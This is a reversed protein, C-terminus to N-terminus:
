SIIDKTQQISTTFLSISLEISVEIDSNLIETTLGSLRDITCGTIILTPYDGNRLLTIFNTANFLTGTVTGHYKLVFYSSGSSSTEWGESILPIMQVGCENATNIIFDVVDNRDVNAPFVQLAASLDNQAQLLQSELDSPPQALQSTQQNVASVEEKLVDIQSKEAFYNKWVFFNVIIVAIIVIIGLWSMLYGTIKNNKPKNELNAKM